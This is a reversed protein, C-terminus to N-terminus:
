AVDPALDRNTMYQFFRTDTSPPAAAWLAWADLAEQTRGSAQYFEGLLAWAEANNKDLRTVEKLGIEHIQKATLTLTTFKEIMAQVIM